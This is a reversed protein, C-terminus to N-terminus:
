DEKKKGQDQTRLYRLLLVKSPPVHYGMEWRNWTNPSVRIRRAAEKLTLGYKPFAGRTTRLRLEQPTPTLRERLFKVQEKTMVPGPRAKAAPQETAPIARNPAPSAHM